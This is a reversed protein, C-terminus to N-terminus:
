GKRTIAASGPHELAAALADRLAEAEDVALVVSDYEATGFEAGQWQEVVVVDRDATVRFQKRQRPEQEDVSRVSGSPM